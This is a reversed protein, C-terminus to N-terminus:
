KSLYKTVKIEWSFIIREVIQLNEYNYIGSNSFTCNNGQVEHNFLLINSATVFWSLDFNLLNQRRLIYIKLIIEVERKTPRQDILNLGLFIWINKVCILRRWMPIIQNVTTYKDYLIYVSWWTFGTFLFCECNLPWIVLISTNVDIAFSLKIIREM